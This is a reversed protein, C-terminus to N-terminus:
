FAKSRWHFKMFGDPTDLATPLDASHSVRLETTDPEPLTPLELDEPINIINTDLDVLIVDNPLDKIRKAAFFSAPVGILFPTPALLLQFGM